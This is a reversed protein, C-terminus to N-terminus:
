NGRRLDAPNFEHWRRIIGSALNSANEFEADLAYVQMVVQETPTINLFTISEHFQGASTKYKFDFQHSTWDNIPLPNAIERELIVEEAVQPLLLRAAKQYRELNEPAFTTEVGFSSPRLRMEGHNLKLFRFLAGDEYSVLETEINLIVSYKKSGDAFYPQRISIGDSELKTYQPRLDLASASLTSLAILLSLHIKM